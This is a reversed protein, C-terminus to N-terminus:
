IYKTPYKIYYGLTRSDSSSQNPSINAFPANTFAYPQTPSNATRMDIKYANPCYIGSDSRALSNAYIKLPLLDSGEQVLTWYGYQSSLINGGANGGLGFVASKSNTNTSTTGLQIRYSGVLTTMNSTLTFGTGSAVTYYIKTINGCLNFANDSHWPPLGSDFLSTKQLFTDTASIYQFPATTTFTVRIYNANLHRFFTEAIGHKAGALAVTSLGFSSSGSFYFSTLSTRTSSATGSQASITTTREGIIRGKPIIYFASSSYNFTASQASWNQGAVTDFNNQRPDQFISVQSSVGYSSSTPSETRTFSQTIGTLLKQAFAEYYEHYYSTFSGAVTRSYNQSPPRSITGLSDFTQVQITTSAISFDTNRVVWDITKTEPYYQTVNCLLRNYSKDIRVGATTVGDQITSIETQGTIPSQYSSFVFPGLLPITTESENIVSIFSTETFNNASGTRMSSTEPLPSSLVNVDRRMQVFTSPSKMFGAFYYGSVPITKTSTGGFGVRTSSYTTIATSPVSSSSRKGSTQASFTRTYSSETTTYPSYTQTSTGSTTIFVTNRALSFITNPFSRSEAPGLAIGLEPRFDESSYSATTTFWTRGGIPGANSTVTETTARYAM